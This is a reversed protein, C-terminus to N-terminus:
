SHRDVGEKVLLLGTFLQTNKKYELPMFDTINIPLYIGLLPKQKLVLSAKKIKRAEQCFIKQLDPNEQYWTQIKKATPQHLGKSIEELEPSTAMSVGISFVTVLITLVGNITM